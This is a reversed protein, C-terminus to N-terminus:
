LQAPLLCLRKLFVPEGRAIKKLEFPSQLASAQSQALPLRPVPDDIHLCARSMEVELKKALITGYTPM